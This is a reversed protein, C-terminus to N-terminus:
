GFIKKASSPNLTLERLIEYKTLFRRDQDNLKEIIFNESNVTSGEQLSESRVKSDKLPQLSQSVFDRLSKM